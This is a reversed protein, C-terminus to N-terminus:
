KCKGGLVVGGVKVCEDTPESCMSLGVFASLIALLAVLAIARIITLWGTFALAWRVPGPLSLFPNV